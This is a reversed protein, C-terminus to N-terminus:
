CAIRPDLAATVAAPDGGGAVAGLLLIAKKDIGPQALLLDVGRMMDNVMWGILSEGVLHLHMAVNYRFYYDQRGVKFEAPFSDKNVFPHQRREGHGLQDPILVYCGARAWTMGMDQLEGQTKPNHHSHIILIGPAASPPAAPRYLNATVWLDPRSEYVLKEIVFGEGAIAGAVITRPPKGVDVFTGLSRKLAALRSDRFSEWDERSKLADWAQVDRRNVQDRQGRLWKGLQQALEKAEDSKAPFVRPDLDKLAAALQEQGAPHAAAVTAFATLCGLALTPVWSPRIM